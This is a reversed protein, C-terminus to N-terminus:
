TTSLFWIDNLAADLTTLGGASGMIGKTESAILLCKPLLDPDPVYVLGVMLLDM